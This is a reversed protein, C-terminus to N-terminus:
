VEKLSTKLSDKDEQDIELGDIMEETVPCDCYIVAEICDKRYVKNANKALYDLLRKTQDVTLNATGLRENLFDYFNNGDALSGPIGKLINEFAKEDIQEETATETMQDEGEESVTDAPQDPSPIEKEDATDESGNLLEDFDSTNEGKLGLQNRLGAIDTETFNYVYKGEENKENYLSDFAQYWQNPELMRIRDLLLDEIRRGHTPKLTTKHNSVWQVFATAQAFPDEQTATIGKVKEFEEDAGNQPRDSM